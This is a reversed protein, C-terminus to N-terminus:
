KKIKRFELPSLGIERKFLRYFFPAEQYGCKYVIEKVSLDTERLLRCAEAVRLRNLRVMPSVGTLRKYARCFSAPTVGALPALDHLTVPEGLHHMMYADVRAVLTDAPVAPPMIRYSPFPSLADVTPLLALFEYLKIVSAMGSADSIHTLAERIRTYENMSGVYVGEELAEPLRSLSSAEDMQLLWPSLFGRAFRLQLVSMRGRSKLFLSEDSCAAFLAPAELHLVGNAYHCEMEGRELLDVEVFGESYDGRLPNFVRRIQINLSM